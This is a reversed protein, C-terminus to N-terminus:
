LPFWAFPFNRNKGEMNTKLQKGIFVLTDPKVGGGKKRFPMLITTSKFVLKKNKKYLTFLLHIEHKRELIINFQAITYIM